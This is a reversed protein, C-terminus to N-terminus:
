QRQRYDRRTCPWVLRVGRGLPQPWANPSNRLRHIALRTHFWPSIGVSDTLMPARQDINTIADIAVNDDNRKILPMANMIGSSSVSRSIVSVSALRNADIGLQPM